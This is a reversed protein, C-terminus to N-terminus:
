KGSTVNSVIVGGSDAVVRFNTKDKLAFTNRATM